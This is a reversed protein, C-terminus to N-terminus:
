RLAPDNSRLWELAHRQIEALKTALMPVFEPDAVPRWEYQNHQGDLRVPVEDDLMYGWCTDVCHYTVGGGFCSSDHIENFVGGFFLRASDLKLGAETEAQRLACAKLGENKRLRGGLTFWEGKLPERTRRFVLVKGADQNFLAVDVTCIPVTDMITRYLSDAIWHSMMEAYGFGCFRESAIILNLCKSRPGEVPCLLVPVTGAHSGVEIPIL